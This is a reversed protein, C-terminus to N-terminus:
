GLALRAASSSSAGTSVPSATREFNWSRTRRRPKHRVHCLSPMCRVVIMVGSCRTTRKRSIAASRPVDIASNIRSASSSFTGLRRGRGRLRPSPAEPCLSVASREPSSRGCGRDHRQDQIRAGEIRSQVSVIGRVSAAPRKHLVCGLRQHNWREDQHLHVIPNVWQEVADRQPM